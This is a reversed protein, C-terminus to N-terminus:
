FSLILKTTKIQSYNLDINKTIIQKKKKGEIRESTNSELKISTDDASLLIGKLKKQDMTTIEVERNINKKYQRAIKFPETLGPSMVNLEFDQVERDLNFEVHRSMAVCEDISIGRDSDLLITIKNGPKLSIDVLYNATGELKKDVLEKIQQATIMEKKRFYFLPSQTGEKERM